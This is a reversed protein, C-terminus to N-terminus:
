REGGSKGVRRQKRCVARLCRSARKERAVQSARTSQKQEEGRQKMGWLAFAKRGEKSPGRNSAPKAKAQRKTLELDYREVANRKVCINM